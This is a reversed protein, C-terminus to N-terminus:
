EEFQNKNLKANAEIVIEPQLFGSVFKLTKRLHRIYHLLEMENVPDYLGYIASRGTVDQEIRKITKLTDKKFDVTMVGENNQDSAM